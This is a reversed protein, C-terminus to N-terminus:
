WPCSQRPTPYSYSGTYMGERREPCLDITRAYNATPGTGFDVDEFHLDLSRNHSNLGIASGVIVGDEGPSDFDPIWGAAWGGRWFTTRTFTADLYSVGAEELPDRELEVHAADYGFNADFLSDSVDLDVQAGDDVRVTLAAGNDAGRAFADEVHETFVNNSLTAIHHADGSWGIDLSAGTFINNSASLM